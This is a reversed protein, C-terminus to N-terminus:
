IGSDIESGSPGGTKSRYASCLKVAPAAAIVPEAASRDFDYSQGQEVKFIGVAQNLLNAQERMSGAAAAAEEVLAANQQTSEDMKTVAQNVQQIGDRQEASAATIEAMIDAVSKISTVIEDMTKGANDV